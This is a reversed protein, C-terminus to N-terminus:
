KVAEETLTAMAQRLKYIVTKVDNELFIDDEFEIIGDSELEYFEDSIPSDIKFKRLYNIFENNAITGFWAVLKNGITKDPLTKDFKFDSIKKLLKIFADQNIDKALNEDFNGQLCCTLCKRYFRQKFRNHFELYLREIPIGSIIPNQLYCILDANNLDTVQKLKLAIDIEM